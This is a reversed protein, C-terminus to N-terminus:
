IPRHFWKATYKLWSVVHARTLKNGILNKVAGQKSASGQSYVHFVEAEPVYYVPRGKEWCSRCLDVDEYYMFYRHDFGGIQKFLDGEIMFASGQVWDVIRLTDHDVDKMMFKHELEMGKPKAALGTRRVVPMYWAPFRRCTEQLRGDMYRVRPAAVGVLPNAKMFEHLKDFMQHDDIRTDPNLFFYYDASIESAGRNSASGFGDNVNRLLVTAEPIHTKAFIHADFTTSANDVLVFAMKLDSANMAKQLSPLCDEVIGNYSVMVVAVDVHERVM